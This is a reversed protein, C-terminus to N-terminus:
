ITVSQAQKKRRKKYCPCGKCTHRLIKGNRMYAFEKELTRSHPARPRKLINEAMAKVSKSRSSVKKITVGTNNLSYFFLHLLESGGRIDWCVGWQPTGHMRTYRIADLERRNASAICFCIRGNKNFNRVCLFPGITVTSKDAKMLSFTKLEEKTINDLAVGPSRKTIWTLPDQGLSKSIDYTFNYFIGSRVKPVGNLEQIM